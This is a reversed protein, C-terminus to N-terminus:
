CNDIATLYTAFGAPDPIAVVRGDDWMAEYGHTMVWADYAAQECDPTSGPQADSNPSLDFEGM